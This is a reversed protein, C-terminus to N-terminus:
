FIRKLNVFFSFYIESNNRMDSFILRIGDFNWSWYCPLKFIIVTTYVFTFNELVFKKLWHPSNRLFDLIQECKCCLDKLSFQNKQTIDVKVTHVWKSGCWKNLLQLGRLLFTDKKWFIKKDSFILFDSFIM